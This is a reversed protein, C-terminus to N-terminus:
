MVTHSLFTTIAHYLWLPLRYIRYSTVRFIVIHYSRIRDALAEGYTLM